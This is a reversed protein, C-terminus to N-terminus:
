KGGTQTRALLGRLTAAEGAEFEGDGLAAEADLTAVAWQIAEREADTLTLREVEAVLRSVLCAPHWRHCVESHTQIRDGQTALWERADALLDVDSM